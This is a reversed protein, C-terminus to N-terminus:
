KANIKHSTYDHFKFFSKIPAIGILPHAICNHVIWWGHHWALPITKKKFVEIRQYFRELSGDESGIFDFM